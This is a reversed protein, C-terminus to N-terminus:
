NNQPRYFTSIEGNDYVQWFSSEKEFQPADIKDVMVFDMKLDQYCKQSDASAPTSIMWLTCQEKKDVGNSYRDFNARYFPFNYDRMFFLKAWSDATVFVHDKLIQDRGDTKQALYRSAALTQATKQPDANRIENQANDYFGEAAAFSFLLILFVALMRPHMLLKGSGSEAKSNNKVIKLIEVIAFASLISFPLSGYNGVRASPIDIGVSAPYLSITLIVLIWGLLFFEGYGSENKDRKKCFLFILLAAGILGLAARPEGITFKFNSFPLGEHGAKSPGGIVTNVAANRLYSPTHVGFVFIMALILFSAAPVSFFLGIWQRLLARINKFNFILLLVTSLSLALLLILGTLHHTYFIGMTVFIALAAQAKNRETLARYFFYLAIPVLLNGIINGIVGGAVYKAQPPAIAFLPGIFFFALIAINKAQPHNKFFRLALIFIALIGAINIFFLAVIPFYSIFDLGGLLAIATFILHEGIIFDSINEPQGIQYSSRVQEIDRQVYEQIKGELAFSKAWYMHHGLDTTSPFINNSLYSTKIFVTLFIIAIILLTQKQSFNFLKITEENDGSENKKHALKYIAFCAASFLVIALLLSNRTFIIHLRDMILMLFDVTIISLGVAIVLKEISSFIQKRGFIALLLFHGPLFLVLAIAIFFLIQQGM